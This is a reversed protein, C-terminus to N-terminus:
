FRFVCDNEQRNDPQDHAVGQNHFPRDSARSTLPRNDDGQGMRKISNLCGKLGLLLASFAIAYFALEIM